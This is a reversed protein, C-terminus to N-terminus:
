YSHYITRLAGYKSHIYARVYTKSDFPWLRHGQCGTQFNRSQYSETHKYMTCVYLGRVSYETSYEPEDFVQFDNQHGQRTGKDPARTQSRM